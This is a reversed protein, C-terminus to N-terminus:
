LLSLDSLSLDLVDCGKADRVVQKDIINECSCLDQIYWKGWQDNFCTCFVFM